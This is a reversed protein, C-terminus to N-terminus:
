IDDLDIPIKTPIRFLFKTFETAVASSIVSIDTDTLSGEKDKYKEFISDTILSIEKDVIASQALRMLNQGKQAIVPLYDSAYKPYNKTVKSHFPSLNLELPFEKKLLLPDIKLAYQFPSGPSHEALVATYQINGFVVFYGYIMGEHRCVCIYHDIKSENISFPLINQFDISAYVNPTEVDYRIYNRAASLSDQHLTINLNCDRKLWHLFNFLNKLVAKLILKGGFQLNINLPEKFFERHMTIVPKALTEEGYQRRLNHLQEKAKELNQSSVEMELSGDPKTITNRISGPILPVGGPGLDFIKGSVTKVGHLIPPPTRRDGWICFLNRFLSYANVLEQDINGSEHRSFYNNCDACILSKSVFKSGLASQIIHEKSNAENIECYICPIM